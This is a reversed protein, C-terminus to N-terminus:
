RVLAPVVCHLTLSYGSGYNKVPPVEWHGDVSSLILRSVNESLKVVTRGPAGRGVRYRAGPARASRKGVVWFIELGNPGLNLIELSLDSAACDRPIRTVYDDEPPVVRPDHACAVALVLSLAILFPRM